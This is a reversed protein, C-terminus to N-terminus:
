RSVCFSADKEFFLLCISELNVMWPVGEILRPIRTKTLFLQPQLTVFIFFEQSFSIIANSIMRGSMDM